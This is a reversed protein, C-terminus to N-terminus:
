RCSTKTLRPKVQEQLTQSPPCHDPVSPTKRSVPLPRLSMRTDLWSLPRHPWLLLGRVISTLRQGLPLNSEPGMSNIMKSCLSFNLNVEKDRIYYKQLRNQPQEANERYVNRVWSYPMGKTLLPWKSPGCTEPNKIQAKTESNHGWVHPVDM